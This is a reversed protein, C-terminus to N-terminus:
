LPTGSVDLIQLQDSPRPRDILTAVSRLFVAIHSPHALAETAAFVSPLTPPPSVVPASVAIPPPPMEGAPWTREVAQNRHRPKKQPRNETQAALLRRPPPVDPQRPRAERWPAPRLQVKPAARQARPKRQRWQGASGSPASPAGSTVASQVPCPRQAQLKPARIAFRGKKNYFLRFNKPLGNMIKEYIEDPSLASLITMKSAEVAIEGRPGFQMAIDRPDFSSHDVVQLIKVAYTWQQLKSRQGVLPASPSGQSSEGKRRRGSARRCPSRGRHEKEQKAPPTQSRKRAPARRRRRSSASSTSSGSYYSYASRSPSPRKSPTPRSAQAVAKAQMKLVIEAEKTAERREGDRAQHIVRQEMEDAATMVVDAAPLNAENIVEKKSSQAGNDAIVAGEMRWSSDLKVPIRRPMVFRYSLLSLLPVLFIARRLIETSNKLRRYFSLIGWCFMYMRECLFLSPPRRRSTQGRVRNPCGVLAHYGERRGATQCRVISMKPGRPLTARLRQAPPTRDTMAKHSKQRKVRKMNKQTPCLALRLVSSVLRQTAAARM